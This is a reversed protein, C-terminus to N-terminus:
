QYFLANIYVYKSVNKKNTYVPLRTRALTHPTRRSFCYHYGYTTTQNFLSRHYKIITFHAGVALSWHKHHKEVSTKSCIFSHILDFTISFTHTHKHNYTCILEFQFKTCFGFFGVVGVTRGHRRVQPSQSRKGGAHNLPSHSPCCGTEVCKGVYQYTDNALIPGREGKEGSQQSMKMAFGIKKFKRECTRGCWRRKGNSRNKGECNLPYYNM